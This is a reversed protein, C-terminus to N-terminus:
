CYITKIKLLKKIQNLISNEISTSKTSSTPSESKSSKILEKVKNKKAKDKVQNSGPEPITEFDPPQILPDQKKILFEDTSKIKENRMIKGAEGLGSCSNLFIIVVCFIPLLKIIKM